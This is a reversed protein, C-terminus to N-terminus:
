FNGMRSATAKRKFKRLARLKVGPNVSCASASVPPQVVFTM